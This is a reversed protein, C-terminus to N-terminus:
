SKKRSCFEKVDENILGLIMFIGMPFYLSPIYLGALCIAAIWAWFRGKKLHSVVLEIFVVMVVSLVVFLALTVMFIAMEFDSAAVSETMGFISLFPLVSLLAIIIYAVASFHLPITVWKLKSPM